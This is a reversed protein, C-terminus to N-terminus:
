TRFIFLKKQVSGVRASKRKETVNIGNNWMDYILCNHYVRVAMLADDIAKKQSKTPYLRCKMAYNNIEDYHM